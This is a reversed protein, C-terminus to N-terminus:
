ERGLYALSRASIEQDIRRSPRVTTRRLRRTTLKGGQRTVRTCRLVRSLVENICRLLQM